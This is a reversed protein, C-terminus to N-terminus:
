CRRRSRARTRSSEDRTHVAQMQGRDIVAARSAMCYVEGRDHSVLLAARRLRAPSRPARAGTEVQPLPRAGLVARRAAPDERGVRPHARACRAAAPRGLAGDPVCERARLACLARPERARAGRAASAHRARCLPHQRRDDHEPVPLTRSCTAVRRKQPPLDIGQESDFLVEGDLVIRGRDPRELGAICKLTM